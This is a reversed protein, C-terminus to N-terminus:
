YPRSEPALLNRFARSVAPLPAGFRPDRALHLDVPLTPHCQRPAPVVLGLLRVGLADRDDALRMMASGAARFHDM